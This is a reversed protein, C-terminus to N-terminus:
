GLGAVFEAQRRYATPSCGNLRRFARRFAFMDSYGLRAAIAEVSLASNRLWSKALDDVVADRIQRFQVGEAALRRRLTAESCGLRAAITALNAPAEPRRLKERRLLGTVLTAMASKAGGTELAAPLLRPMFTEAQERSAVVARDLHRKPVLLALDAAQYALPADFLLATIAEPMAARHRVQGSVGDLPGGALTELITLYLLLPWIDSIQGAAGRRLPHEIVLAINAGADRVETPGRRALVLPGFRVLMELAEGLTPAALMGCMLFRVKELRDTPTGPIGQYLRIWSRYAEAFAQAQGEQDSPLHAAASLDAAASMLRDTASELARDRKAGSEM